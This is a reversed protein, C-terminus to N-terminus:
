RRTLKRASLLRAMRRYAVLIPRLPLYLVFLADPLRLMGVDAATVRFLSFLRGAFHRPRASLPLDLRIM